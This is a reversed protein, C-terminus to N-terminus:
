YKLILNCLLSLLLILKRCRIFLETAIPNLKKDNIMDAIMDDFVILIKYKKELNYEKVNEYVDQM